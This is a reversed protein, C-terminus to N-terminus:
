SSADAQLRCCRLYTVSEETVYYTIVITGDSLQAAAPTGFTFHHWSHLADQEVDKRAALVPATRVRAPEMGWIEVHDDERFSIGDTNSVLARIGYPERRHNTVALVRGDHLTLLETRQGWFGSDHPTSWSRGMDTSTAMHVNIGRDTEMDHSWYAALLRQDALQTITLDFYFPNESVNVAEVPNWSRGGDFSGSLLNAFSSEALLKGDGRGEGTALLTGDSLGFVQGLRGVEGCPEAEIREPASWTNAADNSRVVFLTSDVGIQRCVRVVGVLDGAPMVALGAGWQGGQYGAIHGCVDGVCNWSVGGDTSRHIKALGDASERATGHRCLCILNDDNLVALYPFAVYESTRQPEPNIYVVHHDLVSLTPM